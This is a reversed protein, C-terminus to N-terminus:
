CRLDAETDGKTPCVRALALCAKPRLLLLAARPEPVRACLFTVRQGGFHVAIDDAAAVCADWSSVDTRITLVGAAGAASLATSASAMKAEDMDLIAVSMHATACRMAAELGFGSAGGTIVAVGSADLLEAAM